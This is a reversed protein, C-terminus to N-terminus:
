YNGYDLEAIKSDKKIIIRFYSDKSHLFHEGFDTDREYRYEDEYKNWCRSISEVSSYFFQSRDDIESPKELTSLSDLLFFFDDNRLNKFELIANVEFEFDFERLYVLKSEKVTFNPMQVGLLNEIKGKDEYFNSYKKHVRYEYTFLKQSIVWVFFLFISLSIAKTFFLRMKWKTIIYFRISHAMLLSFVIVFLWFSEFLVLVLFMWFITFPIRWWKETFYKFLSRLMHVM